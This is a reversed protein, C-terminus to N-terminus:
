CRGGGPERLLFRNKRLKEYMEQREIWKPRFKAYHEPQKGRKPPGFLPKAATFVMDASIDTSFPM